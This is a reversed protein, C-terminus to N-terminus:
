PAVMNNILCPDPSHRVAPKICRLTSYPEDFFQAILRCQTIGSQTAALLHSPHEKIALASAAGRDGAEAMQALRARHASALAMEALAFFGSLAILFMLIWLATM